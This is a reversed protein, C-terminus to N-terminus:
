AAGVEQVDRTGNVTWGLGRRAAVHAYSRISQEAIHVQDFSELARERAAAGLSSRMGPHDILRQVADRLADVDRPPVLILETGDRGLERCGRIDSLVLAKGVAAAEMGARSFGERYSPLVFVDLANYLAPMDSRVGLRHVEDPFSFRAATLGDEDPGVWVFRVRDSALARAVEAFERIGKEATVRGVGGVLIVRDDVGLEKRVARRAAPDPVFRCLDVGNGVVRQKGGAWRSLTRADEGNQYLEAHSVVASLGEALLVGARVWSRQTPHTWLGHCTNVVVPIGLGRGIFRGLVGTKPNHTHLVDPRVRRLAAAIQVGARVDGSPSWTRTLAPIPVHHVGRAEVAQVYPGPASMGYTELGATVDASLETGLLLELSMDVTTLHVVRLPRGDRARMAPLEPM